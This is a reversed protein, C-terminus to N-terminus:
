GAIILEIGIGTILKRYKEPIKSDTILAHIELLDAYYSPTINGFKSSDAVLIIKKSSEMLAKKIVVHFDHYCTLGLKSDIGGASIFVKDTRTRKIIDIGENSSIVDSDRYLSGGTLILKVNKKNYLEMACEFTVCLANVPHERSLYKAIFLTTTGIDFAVTEGPMIISAARLGISSKEKVHKGIEKGILYKNKEHITYPDLLIAGGHTRRIIGDEELDNLDRRITMESTILHGSLERVTIQGHKNLIAIIEKLRNTKKSM